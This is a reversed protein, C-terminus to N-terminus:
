KIYSPLTKGLSRYIDKVYALFIKKFDGTSEDFTNWWNWDSGEIIYFHELIKEINKVKARSKEIHDRLRRLIHWNLNNTKSGVWVGFDSNIWSGPAIRELSKTKTTALFETPTTASLIDSKELSAYIHELFDVGNNPYYEWANEGDMIIPVMREKYFPITHYHIRKFHELLDQAAFTSDDWGQYIFSIADSLNRDRFFLNVGDFNYPRYIIHRQNKILDYPIYDTMLSRFLIGEDLGIWKFGEEKYIRMVGESISGESPWSGEVENSFIERFTEKSKKLHWHCDEPRSFRSIPTKLYPFEKVVDTDYLLPLIPHYYPAITVEIRGADLLKKYLPFIKSIIEYQKEIVYKKDDETYNREKKVISKLNKDKKLSYPHFWCLNFLVQLDMMDQYSFKKKSIKQQHLQIYRKHPRVYREFNIHFFREKIFEREKTTLHSPDKLTLVLYYDKAGRTYDLLQKLLVGSFNFTVKVNAFKNVVAAMGYYDKIAHLRVWGALYDKKSPYNYLPQHMHWLFIVKTPSRM